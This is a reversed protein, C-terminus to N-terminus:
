FHGKYTELDEFIGKMPEKANLFARQPDKDGVFYLEHTRM